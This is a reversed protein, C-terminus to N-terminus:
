KVLFLDRPYTGFHVGGVDGRDYLSHFHQSEIRAGEDRAAIKDTLHGARITPRDNNRHTKPEAPQCGPMESTYNDIPRHRVNAQSTISFRRRAQGRLM